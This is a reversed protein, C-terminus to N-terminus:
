RSRTRNTSSTVSQPCDSAFACFKCKWKEDEPVFSAERYGLWFELGKDVQKKCWSSDYPFYYEELLSQDSQLEYRLLLQEDSQSLLSSTRRFHSLVDDLTKLDLELSDIYKKVDGTLTYQRNLEYHRFFHETPFTNTVLNDWLYKYCMLQLRANRKQAASPVTAKCRTKTDVLMPLGAGGDRSIRIEDIVGVMWVGEIVGVVPLERTIGEFLLNHAGIIFNMLRIAWSDEITEFHLEMKESVEKELQSHRDSGAKMADTRKPKGRCLSFELQKECWEQYYHRTSTIDTVSLGRKSRFQGLLSSRPPVPDEIDGSTSFSRPGPSTPPVSSCPLISPLSSFLAFRSSSSPCASSALRPRVSALAAEIFAM